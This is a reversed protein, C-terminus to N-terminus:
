VIRIALIQIIVYLALGCACLFLTFALLVPVIFVMFATVLGGAIGGVVVMALLTGVYVTGSSFITIGGFIAGLLVGFGVIVNGHERVFSFYADM